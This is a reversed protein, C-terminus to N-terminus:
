CAKDYDESFIVDDLYVLCIENLLQRLAKEMLRKFIVPANCLGFSIVTFLRKGVSFGTKEKDEPCIKM